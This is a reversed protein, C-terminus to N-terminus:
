TYTNPLSGRKALVALSSHCLTPADLPCWTVLASVVFNLLLSIGSNPYHKHEQIWRFTFSLSEETM